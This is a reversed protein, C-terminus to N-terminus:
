ARKERWFIFLGSLVIIAIGLLKSPTPFDAFVVYGLVTASVIELYQFPALISAPTKQFARVILLHSYGAITGLGVILLWVFASTPLSVQFNAVGASMGGALMVAMFLSGGIGAVYQMSLPSDLRGLARNLLMYSAFLTASVIPLLAVMGFRSFSPNIVIVAGLFGVAIALWRLWDVNERLVLASLATLIFPEVFFIAIVDALPVYKVATFIGLSAGALLAGRLLNPWWRKPQLAAVGGLAILAPATAVFQFFFRYFTVQGPTMTETMALWKGIADMAPLPLVGCVMIAIGQVYGNGPRRRRRALTDM